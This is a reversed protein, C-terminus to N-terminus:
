NFLTPEDTYEIFPHGNEDFQIKLAIHTFSFSGQGSRHDGIYWIKGDRTPVFAAQPRPASDDKFRRATGMFSMRPM